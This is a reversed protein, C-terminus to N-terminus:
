TSRRSSRSSSGRRSSAIARPLYGCPPARRFSCGLTSLRGSTGHYAIARSERMRRADRVSRRFVREARCAPFGAGALALISGHTANRARSALRSRDALPARRERERPWVFANTEHGRNDSATPDLPATRATRNLMVAWLALASIRDTQTRSGRSTAPVVSAGALLAWPPNRANLERNPRPPYMRHTGTDSHRCVKRTRPAPLCDEIHPLVRDALTIHSVFACSARLAPGFEDAM